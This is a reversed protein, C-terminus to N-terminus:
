YGRAPDVLSHLPEGSLFRQLNQIFVEALRGFVMPDYASLHPSLHVLPHSYFPHGAPLPEPDTVDLTARAVRGDNLAELLAEDDVLPGRSVNVLHLGRKCDRLADRGILHRTKPTSAAAIIVHESRAMLEGVPVVEVEAGPDALQRRAVLVRMGMAQGLTAVLRGIAGYGVIGLTSGELIGLPQPKWDVPNHIWVQPIRKAYAFVAALAYEAVPRASPGRSSTVQPVEFYFSPYGDAGASLLQIWRVRTTWAVRTGPAPVPFKRAPAAFFVTAEAPLELAPGPPISVIDASPVAKAIRENMDAGLQSAIVPM